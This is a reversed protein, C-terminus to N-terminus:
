WTQVGDAMIKIIPLTVIRDSVPNRKNIPSDHRGGEPLFVAQFQKFGAGSHRSSSISNQNTVQVHEFPM